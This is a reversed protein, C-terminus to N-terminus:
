KLGNLAWLLAPEAVFAAVTVVDASGDSNTFEYSLEYPPTLLPLIDDLVQQAKTITVMEERNRPLVSSGNVLVRVACTADTGSTQLLYHRLLFGQTVKLTTVKPAAPTTSGSVSISQSYLM